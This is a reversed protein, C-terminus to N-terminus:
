SAISTAMIISVGNVKSVKGQITVSEKDAVRALGKWDYNGAANYVMYFTGNSLFGVYQGAMVLEKVRAVSLAEYNGSLFDTMKVVKGTWGGDTAKTTTGGTKATEVAKEVKDAAEEAVEETEAAVEEATEEVSDVQEQVTEEVPEDKKEENGGCAFLLGSLLLVLLIKKM